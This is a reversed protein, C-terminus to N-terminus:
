RRMEERRRRVKEELYCRVSRLTDLALPLYLYSRTVIRWRSVSVSDSGSKMRVKVMGRVRVRIKIKVSKNRSFIMDDRGGM